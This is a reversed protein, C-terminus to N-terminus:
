SEICKSLRKQLKEMDDEARSANPNEVLTRQQFTDYATPVIVLGSRWDNCSYKSLEILAKRANAPLMRGDSDYHKQSRFFLRVTLVNGFFKEIDRLWEEIV